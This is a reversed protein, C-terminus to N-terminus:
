SSEGPRLDRINEHSDVLMEVYFVVCSNTEGIDGAGSDSAQNSELGVLAQVVNLRELDVARADGGVKELGNHHVHSSM